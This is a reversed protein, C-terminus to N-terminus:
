LQNTASQAALSGFWVICLHGLESPYGLCQCVPSRWAPARRLRVATISDMIYRPHTTDREEVVTSKAKKRTPAADLVDEDMQVLFNALEVSFTSDNIITNPVAIAPGPYSCILKGKAGMVATPDPSMEFSEFITEAELKRMIVAANQARIMYVLVDKNGMADIQSKVETASMVSFRISDQLNRLMTLSSTWLPLKHSPLQDSFALAADFVAQSLALENELFHDSRQPLKLPLFVHNVIYELSSQDTPLRKVALYQAM